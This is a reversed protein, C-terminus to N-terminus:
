GQLGWPLKINWKRGKKHNANRQKKQVMHEMTSSYTGVNVGFIAWNQLYIITFIGAGHLM